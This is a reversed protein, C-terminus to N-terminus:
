RLHIWVRRSPYATPLKHGSLNGVAVEATLRGAAVEVQGISLRAASQKLSEVSEASAAALETASAEVGLDDRDSDLLKPVLSNGAQFVHQGLYARDQGMRSAIPTDKFRPMHCSQCTDAPNHSSHTWELYPVQEPFAGLRCKRTWRM